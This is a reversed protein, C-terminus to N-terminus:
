YNTFVYQIFLSVTLLFIFIFFKRNYKVFISTLGEYISAAILPYMLLPLGFVLAFVFPLLLIKKRKKISILIGLISFPLLVVPFKEIETVAPRARPHNAFFYYNPSFVLSSREVLSGIFRLEPREEVWYAIPFPLVPYARMQQFRNQQTLADNAAYPFATNVQLQLLTLIVLTVIFIISKTPQRILFLCCLFICLLSLPQSILSVFWANLVVAIFFILFNM